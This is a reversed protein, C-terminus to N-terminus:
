AGIGTESRVQQEAFAARDQQARPSRDLRSVLWITLFALPMSFLTPSSYPFVANAQGFVNVWVAPSLLTLALALALGVAGGVAVGRTTAGRWLLSM